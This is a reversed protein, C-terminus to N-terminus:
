LPVVRESSQIIGFAIRFGPMMMLTCGYCLVQAATQDEVAQQLDTTATQLCLLQM